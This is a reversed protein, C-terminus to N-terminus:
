STPAVALMKQDNLEKIKAEQKAILEVARNLEKANAKTLSIKVEEFATKIDKKFRASVHQVGALDRGAPLKSRFQDEVYRLAAHVDAGGQYEPFCATLPVTRLLDEFIDKKNLFLVINTANFPPKSVVDHFVALEEHMRNKTEDEFLVTAYGGLNVVFIICKVDDFANAWKKRESRQGGVDVVTWKVPGDNFETLILGTTRTRAMVVDEETPVFDPEVFRQVNDFYYRVADLLWFESRREYAKQIAADRWLRVVHEAHAEDLEANLDVADLAAAAEALAQDLQYEFNASAKLLTKMCQITNSHLTSAYQLLEEKKMKGKFILRLM